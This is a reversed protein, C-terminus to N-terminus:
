AHPTEKPQEPDPDSPGGHEPCCPGGCFPLQELVWPPQGDRIQEGWAPKDCTGFPNGMWDWM